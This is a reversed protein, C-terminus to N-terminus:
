AIKAPNLTKTQDEEPVITRKASMLKPYSTRINTRKLTSLALNQPSPPIVNNPQMTASLNNMTNNMGAQSTEGSPKRGLQPNPTKKGEEDRLPALKSSKVRKSLSNAIVKQMGSGVITIPLPQFDFQQIALTLESKYTCKASPLFTIEITLTEQAPIV